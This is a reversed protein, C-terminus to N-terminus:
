HHRALTPVTPRMLRLSDLATAPDNLQARLWGKLVQDFVRSQNALHFEVCALGRRIHTIDLAPANESAAEARAFFLVANVDHIHQHLGGLISLRTGALARQWLRSHMYRCLLATSEADLEPAIPHALVEQITLNRGFVRSAYTGSLNALTM